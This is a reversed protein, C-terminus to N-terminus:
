GTSAITHSGKLQGLHYSTAKNKQTKAMEDQIASIKAVTTSM